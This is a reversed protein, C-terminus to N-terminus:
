EEIKFEFIKFAIKKIISKELALSAKFKKNFCLIIFVIGTIILQETTFAGKIILYLDYFIISSFIADLVFSNSNNKIYKKIYKGLNIIKSGNSGKKMLNNVKRTFFDIINESKNILESKYLSNVKDEKNLMNLFISESLYLRVKEFTKSLLEKTLSYQYYDIIYFKIKKILKLVISNEM